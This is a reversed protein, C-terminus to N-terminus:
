HNIDVNTSHMNMNLGNCYMSKSIMLIQGSGHHFSFLLKTGIAPKIKHISPPRASAPPINTLSLSMKTLVSLITKRCKWWGLCELMQQGCTKGLYLIYINVHATAAPSWAPGASWGHPWGRRAPSWTRGSWTQLVPFRSCPIWRCPLPLSTRSLIRWDIMSRSLALRSYGFCFKWLKVLGLTTWHDMNPM